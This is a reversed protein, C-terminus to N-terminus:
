RGLEDVRHVALLKTSRAGECIAACIAALLEGRSGHSRAAFLTTSRVGESVEAEMIACSVGHVRCSGLCPFIRVSTYFSALFASVVSLAFGFDVRHTQRHRDRDIERDRQRETERDTQRQRDTETQRDRRRETEGGRRRETQTQTQTQRQTQTKLSLPGDCWVAFGRPPELTKISKQPLSQTHIDHSSPAKRAWGTITHTKTALNKTCALARENM